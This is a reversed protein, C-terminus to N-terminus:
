FKAVQPILIKMPDQRKSEERLQNLAYIAYSEASTWSEGSMDKKILLEFSPFSTVSVGGGPKDEFTIVVKAM